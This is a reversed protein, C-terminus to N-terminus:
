QVSSVTKPRYAWSNDIQERDFQNYVPSGKRSLDKGFQDLMSGAIWEETRYFQNKHVNDVLTRGQPDALLATVIDQRPLYNGSPDVLSRILSAILVDTEDIPFAATPKAKRVRTPKVAKQTAVASAAQDNEWHIQLAALLHRRIQGDDYRVTAWMGDIALLEYEGTPNRYRRGVEIADTM